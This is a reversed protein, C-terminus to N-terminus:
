FRDEERDVTAVIGKLSGRANQILRVPIFIVKNDFAIIRMKHGPKVDLMERISKPIEVRYKPSVTVQNM